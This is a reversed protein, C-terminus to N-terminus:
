GGFTKIKDFAELILGFGAILLVVISVPVFWLTMAPIFTNLLLIVGGVLALLAFPDVRKKMSMLSLALMLPIILSVVFNLVFISLTSLTLSTISLVTSAIIIYFVTLLAYTGVVGEMVDIKYAKSIKAM